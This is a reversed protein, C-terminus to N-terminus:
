GYGSRFGAALDQDATGNAAHIYFDDGPMTDLLVIPYGKGSIQLTM